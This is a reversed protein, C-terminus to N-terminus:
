RNSRQCTYIPTILCCFFQELIDIGCKKVLNSYSKIRGHLKSLIQTKSDKLVYQYLRKMFFVLVLVMQAYDVILQNPGVCLFVSLCVSM